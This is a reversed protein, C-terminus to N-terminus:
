FCFLGFGLFQGSHLVSSLCFSPQTSHGLHPQPIQMHCGYMIILKKSNNLGYFSINNQQHNYGDVAFNISFSFLYKLFNDM